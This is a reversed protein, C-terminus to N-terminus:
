IVEIELALCLALSIARAKPEGSAKGVRDGVRVEAIFVRQADFTLAWTCGARELLL